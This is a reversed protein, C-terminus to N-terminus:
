QLHYIHYAMNKSTSFSRTQAMKKDSARNERPLMSSHCVQQDDLEAHQTDLPYPQWDQNRDAPYPLSKETDGNAGSFKTERTQGATGGRTKFTDIAQPGTSWRVLNVYHGRHLRHGRTMTGDHSVEQMRSSPPCPLFM